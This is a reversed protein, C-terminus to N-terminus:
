RCISSLIIATSYILQPPHFHWPTTPACPRFSDECRSPITVGNESQLWEVESHCEEVDWPPGNWAVGDSDCGFFAFPCGLTVRVLDLRRSHVNLLQHCPQSRAGDRFARVAALVPAHRRSAISRRLLALTGILLRWGRSRRCYLVISRV